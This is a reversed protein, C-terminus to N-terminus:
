DWITDYIWFDWIAEYQRNEYQKMNDIKMNSWINLFRMNNWITLDWTTEYQRNEYQKTYEFNWIAEYIWFKM